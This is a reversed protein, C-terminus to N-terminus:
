EASVFPLYLQLPSNQDQEEPGPYYTNNLPPGEFYTNDFSPELAPDSTIAVPGNSQHTNDIQPPGSYFSANVHMEPPGQGMAPYLLQKYDIIDQQNTSSDLVVFPGLNISATSVAPWTEGNTSNYNPWNVQLWGVLNYTRSDDIVAYWGNSGTGLGVIIEYWGDGDVDGLAPRTEGNLENYATWPIQLWGLFTYNAQADDFIAIYGNSGSDLGVVIEDLGDRDIDGLAPRTGGYQNNYNSWPIQLWGLFNFKTYVNDFVALYGAGGSGLGIVIEDAFIIRFSSPEQMGDLDGTAPRTEGNRSNYTPWPIQIWRIIGDIDRINDYLGGAGDRIEVWGNGGPGLGLLIEDEIGGDVNGVAPRTEGNVNNYADWSVRGFIPESFGKAGRIEFWGNAGRDFGVVVEAEGDSDIDGVAPRTEGNQTNYSPWSSQAWAIHHYTNGTGYAEAWGNAGTGLGTLIEASDNVSCATVQGNNPYPRPDDVYFTEIGNPTQIQSISGILRDKNGDTHYAKVEIETGLPLNWRVTFPGKCYNVAFQPQTHNKPKPNCVGFSNPLRELGSINRTVIPTPYTISPKRYFEVRYRHQDQDALSFRIGDTCIRSYGFITTDWSSWQKAYAGNVLLQISVTIVVIIIGVKVRKQRM